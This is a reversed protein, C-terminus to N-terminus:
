VNTAEEYLLGEPKCEGGKMRAIECYPMEYRHPKGTVLSVQQSASCRPFRHETDRDEPSFHKCHVCYKSM